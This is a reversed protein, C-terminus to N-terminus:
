RTPSTTPVPRQPPPPVGPTVPPTTVPTPTPRPTPTPQHTPPTTTPAPDSPDPTSTPGTPTPTGEDPRPSPTVVAPSATAGPVPAVLDTTDPVSTGPPTTTPGPLPPLNAGTTSRIPVTAGPGHTPSTGLSGMLATPVGVSAPAPPTSGTPEAPDAPGGVVVTLLTVAVLGGGAVGLAQLTNGPTHARKRAGHRAAGVAM